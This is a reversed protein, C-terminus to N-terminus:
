EASTERSANLLENLARLQTRSLNPFFDGTMTEVRAGIQQLLRSGSPTLHVRLVRKDSPSASRRILGATETRKLLRPVDPTEAVLRGAIDCQSIGEPGAGLVIRLVNYQTATLGFQRFHQEMRHGLVAATRAINLLVEQQLSSFPKSQCIEEQLTPTM